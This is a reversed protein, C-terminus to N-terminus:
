GGPIVQGTWRTKKISQHYSLADSAGDTTTLVEINFKKFLNRPLFDPSQLKDSIEDYIKNANKGSLKEGIGLVESFTHSLWIGTPTGAFLYFNKAFIRWIKRHDTQVKNKDRSPIGLSELSIGQSYLLRYIYHDPIIILEAPDPFPQNEALIKPDVHGHPSVIPLDKVHQYLEFAFSRVPETADFYRHTHLM